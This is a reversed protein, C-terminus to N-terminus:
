CDFLYHRRNPFEKCVVGQETRKSLQWGNTTGCFKQRAWSESEEPSLRSCIQLCLVMERTVVVDPLDSELPVTEPKELGRLLFTEKVEGM